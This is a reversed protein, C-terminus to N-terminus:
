SHKWKMVSFISFVPVWPSANSLGLTEAEEFVTKLTFHSSADIPVAAASWLTLQDISSIWVGKCNVFDTKRNEGM